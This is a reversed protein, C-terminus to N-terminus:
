SSFIGLSRLHGFHSGANECELNEAVTTDQMETGINQKQEGNENMERSNCRLVSGSCNIFRWCGTAALMYAMQTTWERPRSGIVSMAREVGGEEGCSLINTKESKGASSLDYVSFNVGASWLHPRVQQIKRKKYTEKWIELMNLKQVNLLISFPLQHLSCAFFLIVPKLLKIMWCSSWITM